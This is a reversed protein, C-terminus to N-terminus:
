EQLTVIPFWAVIPRGHDDLVRSGDDDIVCHWTDPNQEYYNELKVKFASAEDLSHFCFREPGDANDCEFYPVGECLEPPFEVIRGEAYASRGSRTVGTSRSLAIEM